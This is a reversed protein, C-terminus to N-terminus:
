ITTKINPNVAGVAVATLWLWWDVRSRYKKMEM